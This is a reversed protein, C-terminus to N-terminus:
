TARGSVFRSSLCWEDTLTERCYKLRTSPACFQKTGHNWAAPNWWGEAWSPETPRSEFNLEPQRIGRSSTLSSSTRSSERQSAGPMVPRHDRPVSQKVRHSV